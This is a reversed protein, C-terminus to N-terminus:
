LLRFGLAREGGKAASLTATLRPIGSPGGAEPRCAPSVGATRYVGAEGERAEREGRFPPSPFDERSSM